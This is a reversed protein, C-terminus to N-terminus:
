AFVRATEEVKRRASPRLNELAALFKPHTMGSGIFTWRLAQHQEREVEAREESSLTRGMARELSAADMRAQARLGDDLFGGLALYDAIGQTIEQETSEEAIEEVVLADLKAHQSEEMWHHKLLSAFLPELDSREAVSELYHRQTMWEIHLILLAVGLRSHSLVHAAIAEPPGIFECRSGFGREFAASFMKFLHIHKAEESAFRLLARTSLDDEALRPRAHDMVFPLIFEEVLGFTRLYGAGRVQNLLLREGRSLFELPEVRALSEPLFPKTFDLRDQPGLVDEVRWDVKESAELISATSYSM